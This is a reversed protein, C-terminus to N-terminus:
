TPLTAMAFIDGYDAFGDLNSHGVLKFNETKARSRHEEGTARAREVIRDLQHDVDRLRLAKPAASGGTVYLGSLGTIVVISLVWRKRM